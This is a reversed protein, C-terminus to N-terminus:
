VIHTLKSLRLCIEAIKEMKARSLGNTLIPTFLNLYKESNATFEKFYDEADLARTQWEQLIYSLAVADQRLEEQSKGTQIATQWNTPNSFGVNNTDQVSLDNAQIKKLRSLYSM